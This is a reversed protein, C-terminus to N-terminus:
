KESKDGKFFFIYKKEINNIANLIITKAITTGGILEVVVDIENDNIVDNFDETYIIGDPLDIEELGCGYKIVVEENIAKSLREKENTLIEVVGYGVTGLGIIGIKM